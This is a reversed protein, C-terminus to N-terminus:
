ARGGEREPFSSPMCPRAQRSTPNLFPTRRARRKSRAPKPVRDLPCTRHDEVLLAIMKRGIRSSAATHVAYALDMMSRGKGDMHIDIPPSYCFM